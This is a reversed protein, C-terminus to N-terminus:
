EKNVAIYPLNRYYQKYDLGYGIVFENGIPFGIYSVEVDSVREEKKDLLTCIKISAPKRESLINSLYQLTRGSDIIDEVILIHKGEIPEDLDKLIKVVGSSRYEDGYSSVVMFEMKMPVGIHKALDTMFMVGGKLVCLVVIEKGEYDKTIETGLEKIRKQLDAESILTELNLM